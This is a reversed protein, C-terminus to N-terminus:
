ILYKKHVYQTTHFCSAMKLDLVIVLNLNRTLFFSNDTVKNSKM